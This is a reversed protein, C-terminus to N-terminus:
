TKMPGKSCRNPQVVPQLSAIIASYASGLRAMTNVDDFICYDATHQQKGEFQLHWESQESVVIACNCDDFQDATIDIILEGRQLWAHSSTGREGLMYMFPEYNHEILFRGLLLTADGCAGKPFNLFTEPLSTKKCAEIAKRFVSALKLLHKVSTM